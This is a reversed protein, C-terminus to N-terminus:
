RKEYGQKVNAKVRRLEKSLELSQRQEEILDEQLEINKEIEDSHAKGIKLAQVQIQFNEEEIRRLRVEASIYLYVLIALTICISIILM